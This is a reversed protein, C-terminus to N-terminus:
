ELPGGYKHFHPYRKEMLEHRQLAKQEKALMDQAVDDRTWFAVNPPFYDTANYRTMCRYLATNEYARLRACGKGPLPLWAITLPEPHLLFQPLRNHHTLRQRLNRTAGIYLLEQSSQVFYLGPCPPITARESLLITPLDEITYPILASIGEFNSM